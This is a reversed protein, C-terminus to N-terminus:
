CDITEDLKRTKAEMGLGKLLEFRHITAAFLLILGAALATSALGLNERYVAFVGLGLVALGFITLVLDILAVQISRATM